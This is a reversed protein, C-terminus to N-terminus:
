RAIARRVEDPERDHRLGIFRPRRPLGAPTWDAFGIQAVLAPSVWRIEGGDPVAGGFPSTRRRLRALTPLVAALAAPDYATTVRGAYRLRGEDYYGILLSPMAAEGPTEAYGGIVFEQAQPCDFALWDESRGGAYRSAIRKAVVGSAGGATADRYAAEAGQTRFPTFRIRDDFWVVDRLVSKRELLPLPAISAGEYWLCDFLYLASRTAVGDLLVDGRVSSEVLRLLWDHEAELPERNGGTLRVQGRRSWVICRTGEVKPEWAWGGGLTRPQSPSPLMPEIWDPQGRRLALGFEKRERLLKLGKDM